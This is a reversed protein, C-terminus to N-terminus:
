KPGWIRRHLSHCDACRSLLTSFVRVRTTTLEAAVAEEALRHVAEEVRRLEGTLKPDPPLETRHLPAARLARAGRIWDSSSPIMLGRQLQDIARQHEMMHGVIGGVAPTPADSMAPRTGADSHCAGCASLMTAAAHAAASVTTANAAERAAATMADAHRTMLDPLGRPAPAAGLTRAAERVADLDGRTVGSQITTVLRYQEHMQAIRAADPRVAQAGLAASWLAVSVILAGRIM